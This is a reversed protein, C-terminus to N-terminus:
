SRERFRYARSGPAYHILLHVARGPVPWDVLSGPGSEASATRAATLLDRADAGTMGLAGTLYSLVPRASGGPWLEADEQPTRMRTTIGHLM